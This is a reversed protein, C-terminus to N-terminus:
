QLCFYDTGYRQALLDCLVLATVSDVVARARHVICPDHRGQLRLTKERMTSVDVSCQEKFVSPTPKIACRFHLPMGNTIGGNVGGNHNTLTAIRDDRVCFGDNAQSGRMRSMGFGAGFEV